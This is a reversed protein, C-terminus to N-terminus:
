QPFMRYLADLASTGNDGCLSWQHLASKDLTVFNPTEVTHAMMPIRSDNLPKLKGGDSFKRVKACRTPVKSRLLNSLGIESFIWPSLTLQRGIDELNISEPTNLFFLCETNDIMQALAMNLMLYVHSTSQNRQKYNYLQEGQIKCFQDDIEKLLQQASGWIESDVFAHLKFKESLWGAIAVALDKDKHSHSIFVDCEVKPFWNQRIKEGDLIHGEGVVASQLMDKIRSARRRFGEDGIERYHEVENMFMENDVGLLQFKRYM